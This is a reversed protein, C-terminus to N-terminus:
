ESIKIVVIWDIERIGGKEPFCPMMKVEDSNLLEEYLAEDCPKLNVGCLNNFIGNWTRSDLYNGWYGGLMRAYLNSEDYIKNVHVTENYIPSGIIAYQRQPAFLDRSSLESIVEKSLTTVALTGQRLAEEDTLTQYISGHILFYAVVMTVVLFPKHRPLDINTANITYFLLSIALPFLLALPATQQEIYNSDPILIMVINAAAPILCALLSAVIIRKISRTKKYGLLIVLFYIIVLMFFFLESAYINWSFLNGTLYEYVSAYARRVSSFLNRIINLVSLSDAGNYSSMTVHNRFLEIKLIITYFIAGVIAIVGGYSIYRKIMEKSKKNCIIAILYVITFEATCGLYAQYLGLMVAISFSALFCWVFIIKNFPQVLSMRTVKIIMWVIAMSLFFSIGYIGSTYLYSVSVCVVINSLFLFSVLFDKLSGFRIGFCNVLFCTGMIFFLLTIISTYPHVSVGHHYMDLYRIAWRGLSLEWDGANFSTGNWVADQRNLLFGFLIIGFVIACFLLKSLISVYINKKIM